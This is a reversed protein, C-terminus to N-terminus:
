KNENFRGNDWEQKWYDERQKNFEIRDITTKHQGTNSHNKKYNDGKRHDTRTMEDIPGDPTQNRHHLEIPNGDDGIPAHGRKSPAEIIRDDPLKKGGNLFDNSKNIHKGAEIANDIRSTNKIADVVDDGARVAKIGAGVGGPIAPVILAAADLVVGFGDVIAGGVNGSRVNTVFSNVGTVLSFADWASEVWEGNRDVNRIPNNACWAYPSIGYYVEAMPDSTITRMITAYYWRAHSDYMDLGHTEVYEKGGYKYPQLSASDGAQYEWPLGSPYYRTRQITVTSDGFPKWVERVNGLHDRRYYYYNGDEDM